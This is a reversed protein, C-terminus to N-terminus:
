KCLNTSGDCQDSICQWHSVCPDGAPGYPHCQHDFGTACLNSACDSNQTCPINDVSKGSVCAHNPDCASGPACKGQTGNFVPTCAGKWSIMGSTTMTTLNCAYCNGMANCDVNCCVGDSCHGSACEGDNACNVGLCKGCAGGCDVGTEDGDQMGNACRCKGTGDCPGKACRGDPDPKTAAVLGCMGAGANSDM